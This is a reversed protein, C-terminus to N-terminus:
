LQSLRLGIVAYVVSGLPTVICYAWFITRSILREFADGSAAQSIQALTLAPPSSVLLVMAVVFVPLAGNTSSTLAAHPDDSVGCRNSGGKDRRSVRFTQGGGSGRGRLQKEVNDLEANAEGPPPAYFYAGLVVLTTPISCNGASSLATRIPYMHDKFALQLPSVCAVLISALAAWLPATMFSNVLVCARYVRRYLRDVTPGCSLVAPTQPLELEKDLTLLAAEDSELESQETIIPHLALNEGSGNPSKPFWHSSRRSSPGAIQSVAELAPIEHSVLASTEELDAPGKHKPNSETLLHWGVSWRLVMGITSYLLLYTLARGVMANNNDDPGWKLAPITVVLSQMLAVPLSNSNMFMSAALSFNRQPRTLRFITSLLFSVGMSVLTVILFFIPIVWLERLKEPSLFFAVKSFVLSPTFLAINLRNVKHNAQRPNGALGTCIRRFVAFVGRFDIYIRHLPSPIHAGGTKDSPAAQTQTDSM